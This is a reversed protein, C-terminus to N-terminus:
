IKFRGKLSSSWKINKNPILKMFDSKLIEEKPERVFHNYVEDGKGKSTRTITIHNPIFRVDVSIRNMHVHLFHEPPVMYHGKNIHDMMFLYTLSYYDMLKYNGFAFIDNFGDSDDWNSTKNRGIPINLMDNKIIDVDDNFFSDTRARVVIDYEKDFTKTLMNAKWIKYWMPLTGFKRTSEQLYEMMTIPPSIMLRLISLTSEEFAKYSEVEIKKHNYIKIFNDLTDGLEVNEDDWFSAYVDMDYKKIMDTWYDKTRELDRIHGSFCIAVKPKPKDTHISEEVIGIPSEYKFYNLDDKWLKTLKAIQKPTYFGKWDDSNNVFLQHNLPIGVKKSFKELDKSINEHRIIISNENLVWEGNKNKLQSFLSKKFAPAHFQSNDDLYMDVFYRFDKITTKPNNINQFQKCNAWDSKFYEYLLSFPNRVITVLTDTQHYVFTGVNRLIGPEQEPFDWDRWGKIQTPHLWSHGVSFVGNEVGNITSFQYHFNKEFVDGNTAPINIFIYKM